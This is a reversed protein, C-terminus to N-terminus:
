GISLVGNPRIAISTSASDVDLQHRFMRTTRAPVGCLNFDSEWFLTPRSHRVQMNSGSEAAMPSYPSFGSATLHMVHMEPAQLTPPSPSFACPRASSPSTCLGLALRAHPPRGEMSKSISQVKSRLLTPLKSITDTSMITRPAETSEKAAWRISLRCWRLMHVHVHYCLASHSISNM